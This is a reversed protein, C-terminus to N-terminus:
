LPMLELRLILFRTTSYRSQNKNTTATGMWVDLGAPSYALVLDPQMRNVLKLDTVGPVALFKWQFMRSDDPFKLTLVYPAHNQGSGASLVAPSTVVRSGAPVPLTVVPAPGLCLALGYIMHKIVSWGQRDREILWVEPAFDFSFAGLERIRLKPLTMAEDSCIIARSDPQITPGTSALISYMGNSINAERLVPPPWKSKPLSSDLNLKWAQLATGGDDTAAVVVGYGRDVLFLGTEYNVIRFTNTLDTQLLRWRSANFGDPGLYVSNLEGATRGSLSLNQADVSAAILAYHGVGSPVVEWPTVPPYNNTYISENVKLSGSSNYVTLYGNSALNQIQYGGYAINSTPFTSFPADNSVKNLQIRQGASAVSSSQTLSLVPSNGFSLNLAYFVNELICDPPPTQSGASAARSVEDFSIPIGEPTHLRLKWTAEPKNRQTRPVLTLAKQADVALIDTGLVDEIVYIGRSATIRWSTTSVSTRWTATVKGNDIALMRNQADFCSIHYIGDDVTAAVPEIRWLQTAAPQETIQPKVVPLIHQVNGGIDLFSGNAMSQLKYGYNSVKFIRWRQSACDTLRPTALLLSGESKQAVIPDGYDLRLPRAYNEIVYVDETNVGVASSKASERTIYWTDWYSTGSEKDLVVSELPFGTLGKALMENLLGNGNTTTSLGLNLKSHRNAIRYLGDPLYLFPMSKSKPLNEDSTNLIPINASLSNALAADRFTYQPNWQYLPREEAKIMRWRHALSGTDIMCSVRGEEELVAQGSIKSSGQAEHIGLVKQNGLKHGAMIIWLGQHTDQIVRWELIDRDSRSAATKLLTVSLDSGDLVQVGDLVVLKNPLDNAVKNSTCIAYAPDQLSASTGSITTIVWAQDKITGFEM